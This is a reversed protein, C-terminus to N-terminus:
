IYIHTYVHTHTFEDVFAHVMIYACTMFRHNLAAEFCLHPNRSCHVPSREGQCPFSSRKAFALSFHVLSWSVKLTNTGKSNEPYLSRETEISTTCQITSRLSKHFTKEFMVIYPIELAKNNPSPPSAQYNSGRALTKCPLGVIVVLM